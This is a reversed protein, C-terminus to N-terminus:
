NAIRLVIKGFQAGNNMREFAQTGNKLDFVADIIPVIRNKQVFHLMAEFESPSGMTSGLLSIQKWFIPQLSLNNVKGMTGGYFGIRAGPNCIAPFLSFGDGGASDIIVDFGGAEEKIRKEWGSEKYNVGGKAGLAIAREIKEHSGSSVFVEAGAAIAFQMAMLAVGGGIGSIFVKEGKKLACRTFITRWATLGALPLAAGQEWSLHEPLDYISSFPLTIAEAFTGNEPMGLVRFGKSQFDPSDGWDLAPYFIVRRDNLIGVGDSGLVCPTRIGAYLGQTIFVDRHNLAAAKVAVQVEGASPLAASFDTYDPLANLQNIILAKLTTHIILHSFPLRL